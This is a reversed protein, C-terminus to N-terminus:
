ETLAERPSPAHAERHRYLDIALLAVIAAILAIWAEAPVDLDVFQSRDVNAAFLM